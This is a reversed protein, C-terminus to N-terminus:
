LCISTANESYFCSFGFFFINITDWFYCFFWYFLIFIMKGSLVYIQWYFNIHNWRKRNFLGFIFFIEYNWFFVQSLIDNSLDILQELPIIFTFSFIPFFTYLALFSVNNIIQILILLIKSTLLQILWDPFKDFYRLINFHLLFLDFGQYGLM